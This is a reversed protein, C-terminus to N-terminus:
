PTRVPWNSIISANGGASGGPAACRAPRLEWSRGAIAPSNHLEAAQAVLFAGFRAVFAGQSTLPARQVQPEREFYELFHQISPHVSEIPASHVQPSLAARHLASAGRRRQGSKHSRFPGAGAPRKPTRRHPTQAKGYKPAIKLPSLRKLPYSSNARRPGARRM